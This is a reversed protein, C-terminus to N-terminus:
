RLMEVLKEKPINNRKSVRDLIDNLVGIKLSEHLPVTVSHNGDGTQKTMTVHSSRQRSFQYGLTRLM